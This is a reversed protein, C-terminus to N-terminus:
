QESSEPRMLRWCDIRSRDLILADGMEFSSLKNIVAHKPLGM